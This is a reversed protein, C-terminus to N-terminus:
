LLSKRTFRDLRFQSLDYSPAKNMAMEGLIKGTVPALKFGHGSFGAALIINHYKPHRDLLFFEDPTTTYLCSEVISPEPELGPFSEEILHKCKELIWDSNAQDRHDPEVEPGDHLCFKTLAPYEKEFIGYFGDNGNSYFFLHADIRKQRGAVPKQKFYGVTVRQVKLPFEIGLHQFSSKAWPGLCLIVNRGQFTGKSANVQHIEGPIISLVRNGDILTGGNKVFQDQYTSVAKDAHLIGAELDILAKTGAALKINFENALRENSVEEFAMNCTSLTEKVRDVYTDQKASMVLLKTKTYLQTGSDRELQEWMPYAERMMNAFIEQIYARRIGRSQGHSSGRTHPLPFQKPGKRSVQELLLTRYGNKQLYHATSSGNIGAGVVIADYVAAM